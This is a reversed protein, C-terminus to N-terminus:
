PFHINYGRAQQCMLSVFSNCVKINHRRKKNVNKDEHKGRVSRSLHRVLKILTCWSCGSLRSNICILLHNVFGRCTKVRNPWWWSTWSRFNVTTTTATRAILACPSTSTSSWGNKFAASSPFPWSWAGALKVGLLPAVPVSQMPPQSFGRASRLIYCAVSSYMCVYM